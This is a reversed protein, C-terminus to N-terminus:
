RFEVGVSVRYIAFLVGFTQLFQDVDAVAVALKTLDSLPM